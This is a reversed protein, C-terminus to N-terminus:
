VVVAVACAWVSEEMGSVCTRVVYVPEEDESSLPTPLPFVHVRIRGDRIVCGPLPKELGIEPCGLPHWNAIGFSVDESLERRSTELASRKPVLM